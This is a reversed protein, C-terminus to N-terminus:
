NPLKSYSKQVGVWVISELVLLFLPDTGAVMYALRLDLNLVAFLHLLIGIDYDTSLPFIASSSIATAGAALWSVGSVHTIYM